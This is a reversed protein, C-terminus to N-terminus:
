RRLKAGVLGVIWSLIASLVTAILLAAFVSKANFLEGQTYITGGLGGSIGFLVEAGVAVFMAHPLVYVEGTAIYGMTHPLLLKTAMQRRSAGLGQMMRAQASDVTRIGTLTYTAIVPAVASVVLVVRPIFGNGIWVFLIPVLVFKPAAYLAVIGPELVRGAISPALGVVLAIFIGVASGVAFGFFAEALTIEALQWATGNALWSGVVKVTALPGSVFLGNQTLAILEWILILLCISALWQVCRLGVKRAMALNMGATRDQHTAISM